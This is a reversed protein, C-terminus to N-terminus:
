KGLPLSWNAATEPVQEGQEELYATIFQKYDGRSHLLDGSLRASKPWRWAVSGPVERV